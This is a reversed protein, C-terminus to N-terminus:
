QDAIGKDKDIGGGEGERRRRREGGKKGKRKRRGEEGEQQCNLTAKGMQFGNRLEAEWSLSYALGLTWGKEFVM